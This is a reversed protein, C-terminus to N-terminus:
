IRESHIERIAPSSRRQAAGSGPLLVGSAVTLAGAGLGAQRSVKLFERRTLPHGKVTATGM